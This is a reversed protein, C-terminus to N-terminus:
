TFSINYHSLALSLFIIISVNSFKNSKFIFKLYMGLPVFLLLNILTERMGNVIPNAKFPILNISRIYRLSTIDLRFKFVIVWTLLLLYIVFAVSIMTKSLNNQKKM